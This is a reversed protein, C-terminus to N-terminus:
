ANAFGSVSMSNATYRDPGSQPCYCNCASQDTLSSPAHPPQPKYVLEVPKKGSKQQDGRPGTNPPSLQSEFDVRAEAVQEPRNAM